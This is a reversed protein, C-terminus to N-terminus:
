IFIQVAASPKNIPGVHRPYLLIIYALSFVNLVICIWTCTCTCTINDDNMTCCM